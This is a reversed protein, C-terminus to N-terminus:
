RNGWFDTALGIVAEGGSPGPTRISTDSSGLASPEGSSEESGKDERVATCATPKSSHLALIKQPARETDDKNDEHEGYQRLAATDHPHTGAAKPDGTWARSAM